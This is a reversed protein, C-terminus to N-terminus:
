KGRPRAPHLLLFHTTLLAIVLGTPVKARELSALVLPADIAATLDLGAAGESAYHPLQARAHLRVVRLGIPDSM